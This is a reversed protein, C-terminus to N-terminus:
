DAVLRLSDIQVCIAGPRTRTALIAVTHVEDLCLPRRRNRTVLSDLPVVLTRWSRGVLFTKVAHDIDRRGARDELWVTVRLSDTPATVVRCDVHLEEYGSWNWPLRLVSVGPWRRDDDNDFQLVHGRGPVAVLSREVGPDRDWLVLAQPREFDELLPFRARAAHTEQVRVPLTRLPYLLLVVLMLAGLLPLARRGSRRHWIWCVAFGVGQADLLWDYVAASRGFYTQVVETVAGLLLCFLVVRTLNGALPGRHHLLLTLVFFLAVHYRSGLPGILPDYRLHTPIGLFLPVLLGAMLLIPLLTRPRTPM